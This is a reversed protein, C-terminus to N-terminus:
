VAPAPLRGDVLFTDIAFVSVAHAAQRRLTVLSRTTECSWAWQQRPARDALAGPSFLAINRGAVPDRASTFTFAEIAATRLATGLRQTEGYSVPSTLTERFLAFPEAELHLGRDCRYRVSFATHQTCLPEIFPEVPGAAFVFRYYATEALLASHDISAYFLSPEFRSGFRSGHPLPPYRFPTALLYHLPLDNQHAPKTRELLRELEAQEALTDVLTRTAVEEQSEVM